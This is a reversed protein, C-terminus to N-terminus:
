EEEQEREENENEDEWYDDNYDVIAYEPDDKPDLNGM